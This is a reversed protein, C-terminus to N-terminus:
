TLLATLILLVFLRDSKEQNFQEFDVQGHCVVNRLNWGRQDTLVVRYYIAIDDNVADIFLKDRLVDDLLRTYYGGNKGAKWTAGGKNEVFKLLAAEIQPVSIHIFTIHDANLYANIARSVLPMKGAPFLPSRKIFDVINETTLIGRDIGASVIFQLYTSMTTLSQGMYNYMNGTDDQVNSGVTSVKRGSKEYLSKSVMGYLGTTDLNENDTKNPIFAYALNIFANELEEEYILAIFKDVIDMSITLPVQVVKMESMLQPGLKEIRKLLASAQESQNFKQYRVYLHELLHMQMAANSYCLASEYAKNIIALIRSIELENTKKSYYELLYDTAVDASNLDIRIGPSVNTLLRLRTELEGIIEDEILSSAKVSPDQVILIYSHKWLGPKDLPANDKEYNRIASIAKSVLEMENFRVALQLARALKRFVILTSSYRGSEAALLLNHFYKKGIAETDPKTNRIKKSFEWVLGCYRAILIPNVCVAARSEWYNVIETTINGISIEEKVKDDALFMAMPGFYTHWAKLGYQSNEILTFAYIEAYDETSFTKSTIEARYQNAIDKEDRIPFIQHQDFSALFSM